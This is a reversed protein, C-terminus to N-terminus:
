SDYATYVSELFKLGLAFSGSGGPALWTKELGPVDKANLMSYVERPVIYRSPPISFTESGITIDINPLSSIISSNFALYGLLASNDEIIIANHAKKIDLFTDSFVLICIYKFLVHDVNIGQAITSLPPVTCHFVSLSFM